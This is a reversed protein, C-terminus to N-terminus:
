GYIAAPQRYCHFTQLAECTFCRRLALLLHRPVLRSATFSGYSASFSVPPQHSGKQYFLLTNHELSFMMIKWLNPFFLCPITSQLSHLCHNSAKQFICRLPRTIYIDWYILVIEFLKCVCFLEWLYRWSVTIWLYHTRKQWTDIRQISAENQASSCQVSCQSLLVSATVIGLM